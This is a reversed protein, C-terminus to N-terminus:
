AYVRFCIFFVAIRECVSGLPNIIHTRFSPIIHNNDKHSVLRIQRILPASGQNMKPVEQQHM